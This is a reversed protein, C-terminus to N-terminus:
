VARREALVREYVEAMARMAVELSHAAEVRRRAAAGEAARLAPDRLRRLLAAALEGPAAVPVITSRDGLAEFAGHVDTSVVSCGSAMAELLVLSMGEWRSPLAVVDAARLWRAM